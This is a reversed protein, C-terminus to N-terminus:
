RHNFIQGCERCPYLRQGNVIISNSPIARQQGLGGQQQLTQKAQALRNQALIKAVLDPRNARHTLYHRNLDTAYKFGHNCIKCVFRKEQNHYWVHTSLSKVNAFSKGCHKCQLSKQQKSEGEVFENEAHNNQLQQLQSHNQNPQQQHHQQLQRNHSRNNNPHSQRIHRILNYRMTYRASCYTCRYPRALQVKKRTSEKGHSIIHNKLADKRSFRQNCLHCKYPKEGTHLLNHRM